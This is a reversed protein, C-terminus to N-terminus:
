HGYTLKGNGAVPEAFASSALGLVLSLAMTVSAGKGIAENVKAETLRAEEPTKGLSRLYEHVSDNESATRENPKRSMAELVAKPPLKSHEHGPLHPNEAPESSRFGKPKFVKEAEDTKQDKAVPKIEATGDSTGETPAVKPETAAALRETLAAVAHTEHVHDTLAMLNSTINERDKLMKIMEFDKVPLGREFILGPDNPGPDNPKNKIRTGSYPALELTVPVQSNEAGLVGNLTGGSFRVNDGKEPDVIKTLGGIAGDSWHYTNNYFSDAFRASELHGQEDRRILINMTHDELYNLKDAAVFSQNAPLTTDVDPRVPRYAKEVEIPVKVTVDITRLQTRELDKFGAIAKDRLEPTAATDAQRLFENLHQGQWMDYLLQMSQAHHRCDGLGKAFESALSTRSDYGEREKRGAPIGSAENAAEIPKDYLEDHEHSDIVELNKAVNGFNDRVLKQSIAIFQEPDKIDSLRTHEDISAPLKSADGGVLTTLERIPTNLLKGFEVRDERAISTDTIIGGYQFNNQVIESDSVSMGRYYHSKQLLMDGPTIDGAAKAATTPNALSDKLKAEAYNFRELMKQAEAGQAPDKQLKELAPRVRTEWADLTSKLEAPEIKNGGAIRAITADIQPKEIGGVLSSELMTMSTWYNGRELGGERVTALSTLGAIDKASKLDGLSLNTYAANIGPYYEYNRKFGETYADRASILEEHAQSKLKEASPLPANEPLDYAKAYAARATEVKASDGSELASLLKESRDQRIVFAKAKAGFVEGNMLDPRPNAANKSEDEISKVVELSKGAMGNANYAAALFERVFPSKKFEENKTSDYLHLMDEPNGMKRFATYLKMLNTSPMTKAEDSFAIGRLKDLIENAPAKSDLIGDVKVNFDKQETALQHNADIAAKFDEREGYIGRNRFESASLVQTESRATTIQDGVEVSAKPTVEELKALSRADTTGKYTESLDKATIINFDGDGYKALFAPGEGKATGWGTPIEFKGSPLFVMDTPVSRPSFQGPQGDVPKWREGFNSNPPTYVDYTKNGAEDVKTRTLLWDNANTRQGGAIATGEPLQMGDKLVVGNELKIGDPPAKITKGDLQVGNPLKTGAPIVSGDPFHVTNGVVIPSETTPVRLGNPYKEPTLQQAAVQYYGKEGPAVDAKQFTFKEGAATRAEFMARTEDNSFQTFGEANVKGTPLPTAVLQYDGDKAKKLQMIDAGNTFTKGDTSTWVKGKEEFKVPKNNKDIEVTAGAETHIEVSGLHGSAAKTARDQEERQSDKNEHVTANDKLAPPTPKDKGDKSKDPIDPKTDVAAM